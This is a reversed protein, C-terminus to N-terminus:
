IRLKLEKDEKLFFEQSQRGLNITYLPADAGPQKQLFLNYEGKSIKFPLRYKVTIKSVGEPRLQFYGAFVTKGLDDYPAAKEEFGDASLLQSGKPVYIRTWNPLVSNLWGDQKMPNKYTITLTKEITGDGSVKIDQEVEQTVYLNSKRGGLNADNIHLYDGNYDVIRGALGFAELGAQAKSDFVYFLVHKEALSKFAAAFLGPLKEKPQGLANALISNMLPGIIAKRNGYNPPAFVIKGPENESWVVAGEQDAFSELEYIVQPCNCKPEIQTSFNGFGGVGIPGIADLLNVLLETDVGIVGDVETIGAKEAEKTFVKMSEAFDPSWNMDRLRLKDSLVYPGKLYKVMPEPATLSATYTSDLNYIDSSITPSFKAKDVTVISYATMFGGTPRLEKDNQFLVLYTRQKDVGLLYPAVELLPKANTVFTAATDFLEVGNRVQERLPKGRFKAPYRDPNIKDIEAKALNVKQAIDGAKPTISPLSQIVFDLRQQTTKQGDGQKNDGFGLLDAYPEVASIGIDAADFSYGVANIGHGADSVFGGAWPIIRMWSIGRYASKLNTYSKKANVLESKIAPIKGGKAVDTLKRGEAAFAMAKSYFNKAPFFVLLFILLLFGLIGGAIYLTKKGFNSKIALPWHSITSRWNRLSLSQKNRITSQRNNMTPPEAETAAAQPDIKPILVSEEPKIQPIGTEEPMNDM